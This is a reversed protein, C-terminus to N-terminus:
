FSEGESVWERGGVGEAGVAAYGEPVVLSQHQLHFGPLGGFRTRAYAFIAETDRRAKYGMLDHYDRAPIFVVRYPLRSPRPFLRGTGAEEAVWLGPEARYLCAGAFDRLVRVSEDGRVWTVRELCFRGRSRDEHSSEAILVGLAPGGEVLTISPDGLATAVGEGARAGSHTLFPKPDM